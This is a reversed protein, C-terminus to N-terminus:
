VVNLVGPQCFKTKGMRVVTEHSFHMALRHVAVFDAWVKILTTM